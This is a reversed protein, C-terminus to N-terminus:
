GTPTPIQRPSNVRRHHGAPCQRSRHDLLLRFQRVRNGARELRSQRRSGGRGGRFAGASRLCRLSSHRWLRLQPCRAPDLPQYQRRPDGSRDRGVAPQRIARIGVGGAARVRHERPREHDVRLDYLRIDPCIGQLVIEEVMAPPTGPAAGPPPRVPRKRRWDGGLIGAVHTGHSSSLGDGSAKEIRILPEILSWDPQTRMNLQDAIMNLHKVAMAEFEPSPQRGPLGALRKAVKAIPIDRPENTLDFSRIEHILTFDFTARVRRPKEDDPLSKSRRDGHDIFAPHTTDIGADIVAWAIDRCSIQFLRTAADAKVAEIAETDAMQAERNLFVRTILAPLGADAPEGTAQAAVELAPLFIESDFPRLLEETAAEAIEPAKRRVWRLFDEPPPRVDPDLIPDKVFSPDQGTACFVGVLAAIPAAEIVRHDSEQMQGRVDAVSGEDDRGLRIRITRELEARLTADPDMASARLGGLNKEKWWRTLPLAVHLLEDLYISVAVCNELPSVNLPVRDAPFGWKSKTEAPLSNRYATVEKHLAFGLDVTRVGDSPAVLVRLSQFIDTAFALWVDIVIGGDETFREIAGRRTQGLLFYEVIYSPIKVPGGPAAKAKKAM